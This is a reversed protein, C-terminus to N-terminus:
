ASSPSGTPRPSITPSESRTACPLADCLVTRTPPFTLLAPTVEQTNRTEFLWSASPIQRSFVCDTITFQAKNAVGNVDNGTTGSFICRSVNMGGYPGYLVAGASHSISNEVFNCYELSPVLESWYQVLMSSDGSSAFVTLYVGSFSGTAREANIACGGYTVTCKTFNLGELGVSIRDALLGDWLASAGSVATDNVFHGDLRSSKISAFHGYRASCDSACCGAVEILGSLDSLYFAAGDATNLEACILRCRLFTSDFLAVAHYGMVLIAGGNSQDNTIDVFASAQVFLFWDDVFRTPSLLCAHVISVGSPTPSFSAFQTRGATPTPSASPVPTARPSSSADLTRLIVDSPTPTWPITASISQVPTRPPSASVSVTLRPSSSVTACPVGSCVVSGGAPLSFSAASSVTNGSGVDVYTLPPLAATFVCNEIFFKSSIASGTQFEPGNASFICSGLIMGYKGSFLVSLGEASGASVISNSYFNSFNILPILLNESHHIVSRGSCGFVNLFIARFSATSGFTEIASGIPAYNNTFNLSFLVGTINYAYLNAEKVSDSSETSGCSIFSSSNVAHGV